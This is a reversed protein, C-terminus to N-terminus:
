CAVGAPPEGTAFGVVTSSTTSAPVSTTSAGAHAPVTTTPTPPLTTTTTAARAAMMVTTFDPGTVLTVADPALDPNEVLQAPSTLHRAVLDGAFRAGPGHQVVTQAPKEPSDGVKGIKFGVQGLAAAVDAAQHPAGTGNLVSVKVMGETVADPPLGRFINLIPQVGHDALRLVAAGANTRFNEVPLSYTKLNDATFSKFRQALELLDDNSLNEDVGVNDIAVDLLGQFTIPNTLGKDIARSVARRVFIQQRTIRGLDATPDSRWRNGSKYELHRARAFALAMSGDLTVCGPQDIRLGSNDDRMATDFYMPVGDVTNVLNRFGKFDVEIYHNITIGFAQQITDVLTQRGENYASNIRDNRGTGAIPIWLDRPFSLLAVEHSEPDIRVVIITDSRKGGTPSRKDVFGAYDPDSPDLNDRSDSGVILYNEPEGPPAQPVSVDEFHTLEGLKWYVYAVASAGVVCCM